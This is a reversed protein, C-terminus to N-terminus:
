AKMLLLGAHVSERMEEFGQNIGEGAGTSRIDENSQVLFRVAEEAEGVFLCPHIANIAVRVM